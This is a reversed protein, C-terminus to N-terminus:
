ETETDDPKSERRWERYAYSLTESHATYWNWTIQKLMDKFASRQEIDSFSADAFTLLKGTLHNIYGMYIMPDIDPSVQREGKDNPDHDTRIIGYVKEDEDLRINIDLVRSDLQKGIVLLVKSM